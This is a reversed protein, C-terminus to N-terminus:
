TNTVGGGEPGWFEIFIMLQQEVDWSINVKGGKSIMTTKMFDENKTHRGWYYDSKWKGTFADYKAIRGFDNCFTFILVM